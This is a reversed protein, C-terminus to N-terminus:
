GAPELNLFGPCVKDIVELQYTLAEEFGNTLQVSERDGTVQLFGTSLNLAIQTQPLGNHGTKLVHEQRIKKGEHKGTRAFIALLLNNTPQDHGLQRIRDGLTPAQDTPTLLYHAIERATTNKIM